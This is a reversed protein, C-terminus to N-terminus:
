PGLGRDQGNGGHRKNVGLELPWRLATLTLIALVHIPDAHDLRGLVSNSFVAGLRWGVEVSRRESLDADFRVRM